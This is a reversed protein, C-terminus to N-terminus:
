TRLCSLLRGGGAQGATELLEWRAGAFVREDPILLAVNELEEKRRRGRGEAQARAAGGATKAEAVALPGSVRGAQTGPRRIFPDGRRARFKGRTMLETSQKQAGSLKRFVLFLEMTCNECRWRWTRHRWKGTVTRERNTGLRRAATSKGSRPGGVPVERNESKSWRSGELVLTHPAPASYGQPGLVDERSLKICVCTGTESSHSGPLLGRKEGKRIGGSLGINKVKFIHKQAGGPM